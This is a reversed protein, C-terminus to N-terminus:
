EIQAAEATAAQVLHQGVFRQVTSVTNRDAHAPVFVYALTVCARTGM